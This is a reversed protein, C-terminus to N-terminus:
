HAVARGLPAHAANRVWNAIGNLPVVDRVGGMRIAVEPM